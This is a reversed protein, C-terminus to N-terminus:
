VEFSCSSRLHQRPKPLNEKSLTCVLFEIKKFFVRIMAAAKSVSIELSFSLMYFMRAEIAWTLLSSPVVSGVVVSNM